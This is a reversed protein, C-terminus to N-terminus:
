TTTATTTNSSSRRRLCRWAAVELHPPLSLTRHWPLVPQLAVQRPLARLPARARQLRWSQSAPSNVGGVSWHWRVVPSLLKQEAERQADTVPRAVHDRPNFESLDVSRLYDLWARLVVADESAAAVKAFYATDGVASSSSESADSGRAQGDELPDSAIHNTTAVYLAPNHM